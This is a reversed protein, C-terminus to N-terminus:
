PNAAGSGSQPNHETIAYRRLDGYFDALLPISVSRLQRQFLEFQRNFLVEM